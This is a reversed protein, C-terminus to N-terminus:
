PSTNKPMSGAAVQTSTEARTSRSSSMSISTSATMRAHAESAEKLPLLQMGVLLVESPASDAEILARVEDFYAAHLTRIKALTESSVSCLNYSALARQPWPDSQFRRNVEGLFYRKLAESRKPDSSIDVTTIRTPEYLCGVKRILQASELAHLLPEIQSTEVGILRALLREDHFHSTRYADVELARLVAHSLPFDFALARQAEFFTREESIAPLEDLDVLAALFDLLRHVCHDVLELFDVLRPQSDGDLWRSLTNRDVDIRAALHSIPESGVVTRLLGAIRTDTWYHAREARSQSQCEDNDEQDRALLALAEQPRAGYLEVLRLVDGLKPSRKGSEWPYVVNGRYGLRKSVMTQSRPGRLARLLELALQERSSKSSDAKM